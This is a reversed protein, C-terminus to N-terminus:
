DMLFAYGFPLLLVDPSSATPPVPATDTTSHRATTVSADGPFVRTNHSLSNEGVLSLTTSNAPNGIENQVLTDIKTSEFLWKCLPSIGESWVTLNRALAFCSPM